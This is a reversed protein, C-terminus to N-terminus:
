RSFGSLVAPRLHYFSFTLDRKSDMGLSFQRNIFFVLGLLAKQIVRTQFNVIM